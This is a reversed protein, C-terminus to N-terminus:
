AIDGGVQTGEREAIKKAIRQATALDEYGDAIPDYEQKGTLVLNHFAVL